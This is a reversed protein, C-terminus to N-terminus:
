HSMIKKKSNKRCIYFRSIMSSYKHSPNYPKKSFCVAADLDCKCTAYQAAEQDPCYITGNDDYQYDYHITIPSISNKRLNEFCEDHEYCCQDLEDM